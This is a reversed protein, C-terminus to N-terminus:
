QIRIIPKSPTVPFHVDIPQMAIQKFWVSGEGWLRLLPNVTEVNSKQSWAIITVSRWEGETPPFFLERFLVEESDGLFLSTKADDYMETKYMFSIVYPQGPLVNVPLHQFGNRGQEFEKQKDTWLGDIRIAGCADVLENMDVGMVFLGFNWPRDTMPYLPHWGDTDNNTTRMDRASNTPVGFLSEGISLQRGQVGLMDTILGPELEQKCSESSYQVSRTSRWELAKRTRKLVHDDNYVAQLFRGIIPNTVGVLENTLAQILLTDFKVEADRNRTLGQHRLTDLALFAALRPPPRVQHPAQKWLSHASEMEDRDVLIRLAIALAYPQPTPRELLPRLVGLSQEERGILELANGLHLRAGDDAPTMHVLAGLVQVTAGFDGHVLLMMGWNRYGSIGASVAAILITAFLCLIVLKHEASLM